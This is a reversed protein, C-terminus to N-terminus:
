SGRIKRIAISANEAVPYKDSLLAQLAPVANKAVQGFMGIASAANGRVGGQVDDLAEILAPLAEAPPPCECFGLLEAADMRRRPDSHKLDAILESVTRM